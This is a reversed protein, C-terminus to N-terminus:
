KYVCFEVIDDDAGNLMLHESLHLTIFIKIHTHTHQLM